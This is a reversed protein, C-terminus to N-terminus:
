GEGKERRGESGKKMRRKRGGKRAEKREGKREKRGREREEKRKGGEKERRRRREIGRLRSQLTHHAVKLEMVPWLYPDWAGGEDEHLEDSLDLLEVNSQISLGGNHDVAPSISQNCACM